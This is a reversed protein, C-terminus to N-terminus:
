NGFLLGCKLDNIDAIAWASTSTDSVFGGKRMTGTGGSCGTFTTSSTGTYTITEVGNSTSVYITGSASFGTTSEVYITAQPLTVDNSSFGITTTNTGAPKTTWLNSFGAWGGSAAVSLDTSQYGTSSPKCVARAFRIEGDRNAYGWIGVCHIADPTFGLAGMTYTDYEDV